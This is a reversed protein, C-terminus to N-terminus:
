RILKTLMAYLENGLAVVRPVVEHRAEGTLSAIEIAAVAEVM